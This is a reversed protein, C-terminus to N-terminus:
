ELSMVIIKLGLKLHGKKFNWEDVEKKKILKSNQKMWEEIGSKDYDIAERINNKLETEKNLMIKAGNRKQIKAHFCGEKFGFSLVSWKTITGNENPLKEFLKSVNLEDKTLKEIVLNYVKENLEKLETLNIPHTKKEFLFPKIEMVIYTDNKPLLVRKGSLSKKKPVAKKVLVLRKKRLSKKLKKTKSSKRSSSKVVKIKFGKKSKSKKKKLDETSKPM